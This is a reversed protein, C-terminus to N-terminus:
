ATMVEALCVTEGPEPYVLALGTEAPCAGEAARGDVVDIVRAEAGTATCAVKKTTAAAGTVGAFCDGEHANLMLCLTFGTGRGSQTYVDYSDSPCTRDAGQIRKGVKYVADPSTCDIKAVDADVSSATNVKICDGASARTPAATSGDHRNGVFIYVIVGLVVTIAVTAVILPGKAKPPPPPAPPWPVGYGGVQPRPPPHPQM